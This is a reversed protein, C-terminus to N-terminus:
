QVSSTNEIQIPERCGEIKSLRGFGFALIAVLIVLCVIFLEREYRLFGSKVKEENENISM